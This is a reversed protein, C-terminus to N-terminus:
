HIPLETIVGHTVGNVNTGEILLGALDGYGIARMKLDLGNEDVVGQFTGEWYGDMGDVDLHQTGSLPGYGEADSNITVVVTNWGTTRPDSSESRLLEVMGRIHVNTGPTSVEGPDLIQVLTMTGDFPVRVVSAGAGTVTALLLLVTMTVVALKKM